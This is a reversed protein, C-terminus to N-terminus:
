GSKEIAFWNYFSACETNKEDGYILAVSVFSVTQMGSSNGQAAGSGITYGEDDVSIQLMRGIARAILRTEKEKMGRTTIAPVGIRIGSPDLPGRTDDPIVNKNV